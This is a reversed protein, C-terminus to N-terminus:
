PRMELEMLIIHPDPINEELDPDSVKKMGSGSGFM